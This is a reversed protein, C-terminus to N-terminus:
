PGRPRGKEAKISSAEEAVRVCALLDELTHLMSMVSESSSHIVVKCGDVEAAAYQGNDLEVARKVTEAKKCDSYELTILCELPVLCM